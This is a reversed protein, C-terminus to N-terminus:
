ETADTQPASVAAAKKKGLPTLQASMIKGMLKPAIEVRGVDGVADFIRQFVNTGFEQKTIERGKFKMQLRVKNGEELFERTRNIRAVLDGSAIFPTLRLEKITNGKASKKEEQKKQQLQYKFKSLEILKVVPPQAQESIMVLDKGEREALDLAQQRTLVGIQEGFQSILRMEPARIGENM